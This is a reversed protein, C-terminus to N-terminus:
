PAPRPKTVLARAIPIHLRQDGSLNSRGEELVLATAASNKM